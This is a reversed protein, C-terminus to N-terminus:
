FPLDDIINNRLSNTVDDLAQYYKGVNLDVGLQQQANELEAIGQTIEDRVSKLENMAEEHADYTVGMSQSLREQNAEIERLEEELVLRRQYREQLVEDDAKYERTYGDLRSITDNTNSLLSDLDGVLSLHHKKSKLRVEKFFKHKDM